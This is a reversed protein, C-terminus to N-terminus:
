NMDKSIVKYESRLYKLISELSQNLIENDQLDLDDIARDILVEHFKDHIKLVEKAKDTIEMRVVRADNEDRYKRLYGKA